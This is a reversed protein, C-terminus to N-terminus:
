KSKAHIVCTYEGVPWIGDKTVVEINVPVTQSGEKITQSTFDITAVLDSSDVQAIASKDGVIKVDSIAKTKITIDYDSPQNVMRIDDISLIKSDWNDQTFSVTAQTINDVNKFGSPMPINFQFSKGIDLERMDIYGLNIENLNQIADAPAAVTIESPSITYELDDTNLTGPANKYKFTLPVTKQKYVPITIKFQIDQNYTFLTPDLETGDEAYFKPEAELTQTSTLTSNQENLLVISNLRNMEQEPGQVELREPSAVPSELIYGDQVKINPASASLSITKSSITDFTVTAKNPTVSVISFEGTAVNPTAVLDLVYTDASTVTAISATVTFDDKDMTGIKYRKGSLELSVTKPEINTVELGMKEAQTNTTEIQVPVDNVTITSEPDFYVVVIFWTIIALIVSLIIRSRKNKFLKGFSVNM